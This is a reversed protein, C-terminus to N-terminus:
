NSLVEQLLEQPLKWIRVEGDDGSSIIYEEQDAEDMGAGIQEADRDGRWDRKASWCVHNIEYEDHAADVLAVVEWKTRGRKIENDREGDNANVSTEPAENMAVDGQPTAPSAAVERYVAIIGDGGCSVVLGTRASWDVAYISRVHVAPLRAEESWRESSTPPRIVSPLRSSSFGTPITAQSTADTTNVNQGRRADAIRSRREDNEKENLEKKWVRVTMDDSCSILRPTWDAILEDVTTSPPYPALNVYSEFKLDWVTGEHGTLVAITMWDGEAEDDHHLRITDDYSGSALLERGGLVIEEDQEESGEVQGLGDGHPYVGNNRRKLRERLTKRTTRAGSLWGVCKVDGAHESLVAVTEWEEPEVEEWIWVSKDRSCTALLNAGYEPPSFQLDKIESDPGTLLTSFQWEEDADDAQNTFDQEVMDEEEDFAGPVNRQAGTTTGGDGGTTGPHGYDRNWVWLGCNADFSGTALMVPQQEDRWGEGEEEGEEEEEEEEEQMPAAEAGERDEDDGDSDGRRRKKLGGYDKWGVCRISRKHGGNITSVLKWDRMDWIHVSKDSVATALLPTQADPHPRSAWVKTGIAPNHLTQYHVLSPAHPSTM